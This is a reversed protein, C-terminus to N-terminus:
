RMLAKFIVSIIWLWLAGVIIMLCPIAVLWFLFTFM